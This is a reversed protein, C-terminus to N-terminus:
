LNKFKQHFAFIILSALGLALTIAVPFIWQVLNDSPLSMSQIEPTVVEECQNSYAGIKINQNWDKNCRQTFPPSSTIISPTVRPEIQKSTQKPVENTTEITSDQNTPPLSLKEFSKNTILDKQSNFISGTPNNILGFFVSNESTVLSKEKAILDLSKVSSLEMVVSTSSWSSSSLPLLNLNQNPKVISNAINSINSIVETIISIVGGSNQTPKDLTPKNIPAVFPPASIVSTSNQTSSTVVQSSSNVIPSSITQSSSSVQSSLTSTAQSSPLSAFSSSTVYSSSSLASSSPLFSVSSLVSSNTLSAQSSSPSIFISSISSVNSSSQLSSVMSSLLSSSAIASSSSINFVQLQSNIKDSIQKLNLLGSGSELDNGVTLLDTTNTTIYQKTIDTSVLVKENNQSLNKKMLDSYQAILGNLGAVQPSAFSTGLYSYNVAAGCNVFCPLIIGSNGVPALVFNSRLTKAFNSYSARSIGAINNESYNNSGVMVANPYAAPYNPANDAEEPLDQVTNGNYDCNSASYIACNGSAVYLNINNTNALNVSDEVYPVNYPTGISLNITKIDGARVVEDIAESINITDLTRLSFPVIKIKNKLLSNEFTRIATLAVVSGHYGTDSQNGKEKCYYISTNGQVLTYFRLPSSATCASPNNNSTFFSWSNTQDIYSVMGSNPTVGTDIIAIKQIPLSNILSCNSLNIENITKTSSNYINPCQAQVKSQIQSNIADIGLIDGNGGTNVDTDVWWNELQANLKVPKVETIIKGTKTKNTTSESSISRISNHNQDTSISSIQSGEILKSNSALSSYSSITSQAVESAKAIKGTQIISVISVPVLLISGVLLIIFISFKSM